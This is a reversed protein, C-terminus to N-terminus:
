ANVRNRLTRNLPIVDANVSVRTFPMYHTFRIIFHSARADDAYRHKSCRFVRSRNLAKNDQTM